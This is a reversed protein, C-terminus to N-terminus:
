VSPNLLYDKLNETTKFRPQYNKTFRENDETVVEKAQKLAQSRELIYSLDKIM